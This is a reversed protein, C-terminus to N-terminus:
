PCGEVMSLPNRTPFGKESRCAYWYMRYPGHVCVANRTYRSFFFLCVVECHVRLFSVASYFSLLKKFCRDTPLRRVFSRWWGQHSKGNPMLVWTFLEMLFFFFSRGDILVELLESWHIIGGKSGSCLSIENSCLQKKERKGRLCTECACCNRNRSAASLALKCYRVHSDGCRVALVPICQTTAPLGSINIRGKSNKKWPM